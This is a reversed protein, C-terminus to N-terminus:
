ARDPEVPETQLGHDERTRGGTTEIEHQQQGLHQSEHYEIAATIDALTALRAATPKQALYRDRKAYLVDLTHTRYDHRQM